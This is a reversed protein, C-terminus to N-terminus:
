MTLTASLQVSLIELFIIIFYIIISASSSFWGFKQMSSSIHLSKKYSFLDKKKFSLIYISLIGAIIFIALLFLYIINLFEEQVYRGVYDLFVSILNNVFHIAIGTWISGTEIVMAGLVLGVLFAFPIQVLNGHVLAFIFASTFIAFSKGYKLLNGMIAGRFLLEELLAPAVAVSIISLVFGLIGDPLIVDNQAFPLINQFRSQLMSVAINAVYCFGIGVTLSTWFTGKEPLGYSILTDARARETKFIFFAALGFGILTIVINLELMIAPDNIFENAEKTVIFFGLIISFVIQIAYFLILAVGIHNSTRKVSKKEHYLKVQETIIQPQNYNQYYSQQYSHQYGYYNPQFNQRNDTNEKNDGLNETNIINDPNDVNNKENSSEAETESESLDIEVDVNESKYEAFDLPINKDESNESEFNFDNNM